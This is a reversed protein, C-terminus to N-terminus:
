RKVAKKIYKEMRNARECLRLAYAEAEAAKRLKRRALRIKNNETRVMALYFKGRSIRNSKAYHAPTIM